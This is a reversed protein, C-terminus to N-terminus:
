LAQLHVFVHALDMLGEFKILFILLYSETVVPKGIGWTVHTQIVSFAEQISGSGFDYHSVEYYM